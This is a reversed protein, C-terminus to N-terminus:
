ATASASRDRRRAQHRPLAHAGRGRLARAPRTVELGGRGCRVVPKGAGQALAKGRGKKRSSSPTASASARARSSCACSASRARAQRDPAAAARGAVKFALRDLATRADIRLRLGAGATTRWRQATFLTRCSVTKLKLVIPKARKSKGKATGDGQAQPRRHAPAAVAHDRGQLRSAGPACSAATSRTATVRKAKGHSIQTTVLIPTLEDGPGATYARVRVTGIGRAQDPPVQRQRRAAPLEHRLRPQRPRQRPRAASAASAAASPAPGAAVTGTPLPSRRGPQRRRHADADPDADADADAHARRRSPSDGRGHAPRRGRQPPRRRQTATVVVTIM